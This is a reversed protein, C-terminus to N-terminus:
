KGWRNITILRRHLKHQLYKPVWYNHLCELVVEQPKILVTANVNDRAEIKYLGTEKLIGNIQSM